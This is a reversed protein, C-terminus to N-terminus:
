KWAIHLFARQVRKTKIEESFDIWTNTIKAKNITTMYFYRINKIHKIEATQCERKRWGSHKLLVTLPM